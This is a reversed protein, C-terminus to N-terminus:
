QKEEKDLFENTVIKLKSKVDLKRLEKYRDSTQFSKAYQILGRIEADKQEDFLQPYQNKLERLKAMDSHRIANHKEYYLTIADNVSMEDLISM